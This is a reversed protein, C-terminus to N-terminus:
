GRPGGHHAGLAPVVRLAVWRLDVVVLHAARVARGHAAAAGLLHVAHAATAEGTTGSTRLLHLLVVAHLERAAAHARVRCGVALAVRLRGLVGLHVEGIDQVVELALPSAPLAVAVLPLNFAGLHPNTDNAQAANRSSRVFCACSVTVNPCVCLQCDCARM